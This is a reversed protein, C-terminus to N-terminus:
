RCLDNVDGERMKGIVVERRKFIRSEEKKDLM